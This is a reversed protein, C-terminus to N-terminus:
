GSIARCVSCPLGTNRGRPFYDILDKLWINCADDYKARSSNLLPNIIDNFQWVEIWGLQHMHGKLTNVLSKLDTSNIDQPLSDHLESIIEGLFKENEDSKPIQNLIWGYFQFQEGSNFNSVQQNISKLDNRVILTQKLINWGLWKIFSLSSNLLAEQQSGSIQNFQHSLSIENIIQGLLSLRITETISFEVDLCKAENEVREILLDPANNWLLKIAYFEAWTLCKHKIMRQFHELRIPDSLCDELSNKFYSPDIVSVFDEDDSRKRQFASTLFSSLFTLFKAENKLETINEDGIPTFALIEGLTEWLAESHDNQEDIQRICNIFGKRELKHLSENELIGLNTVEDKLKTGTLDKM